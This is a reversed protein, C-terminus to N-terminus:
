ITLSLTENSNLILSNFNKEINIENRYYKYFFHNFLFYFLIIIVYKDFTLIHFDSIVIFIINGNTFITIKIEIFKKCILFFTLLIVISFDDDM